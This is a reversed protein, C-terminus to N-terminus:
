KPPQLGSSSLWEDLHLATEAQRARELLLERAAGRPIREAEAKWLQSQEILREKFTKEHRARSRRLKM